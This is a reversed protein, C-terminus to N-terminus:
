QRGRSSPVALRASRGACAKSTPPPLFARGHHCRGLRSARSLHEIAQERGQALMTMSQLQRGPFSRPGVRDLLGASPLGPGLNPTCLTLGLVEGLVRDIRYSSFDNSTTIPM